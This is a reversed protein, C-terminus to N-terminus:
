IIQLTIRLFSPFVTICSEGNEYRDSFVEAYQKKNSLDIYEWDKEWLWDIALLEENHNEYVDELKDKFWGELAYWEKWEFVLGDFINTQIYPLEVGFYKDGLNNIELRVIPNPPIPILIRSYKRIATEM